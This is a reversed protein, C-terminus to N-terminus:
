LLSAAMDLAGRGSLGDGQWIARYAAFLRGACTATEAFYLGGAARKTRIVRGFQRKVRM